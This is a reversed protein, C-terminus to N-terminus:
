YSLLFCDYCWELVEIFYWTAYNVIVQQQLLQLQISPDVPEGVNLGPIEGM